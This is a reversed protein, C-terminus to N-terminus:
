GSTGATGPDVLRPEFSDGARWRLYVPAVYAIYLGITGISTAAFFAVPPVVDGQGAAGPGHAPLSCAAASCPTWRCAGQREGPEVAELGSHRPRALVRLVDALMSTVCAMGCFFQGIVAILIIAEAWNQNMEASTFVALSTGFGENVADVDTAAFTIALLM